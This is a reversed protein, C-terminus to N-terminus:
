NTFQLYMQIILVDLFAIKGNKEVELTFEINEHFSNFIRLVHAISKEKIISINDDNYKEQPNIHETLKPILTHELHKIFIGAVMQGLPSGM